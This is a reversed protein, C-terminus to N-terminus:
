ISFKGCLFLLINHLIENSVEKLFRSTQEQLYHSLEEMIVLSWRMSERYFIIICLNILFCIFLHYKNYIFYIGKNVVVISAKLMLSEGMKCM